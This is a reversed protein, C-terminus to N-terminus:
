FHANVVGFTPIFNFICRGQPIMNSSIRGGGFLIYTWLFVGVFIKIVGKSM